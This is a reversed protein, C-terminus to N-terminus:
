PCEGQSREAERFPCIVFREPDRVREGRERKYILEAIEKKRMRKKELSPKQKLKIAKKSGRTRQRAALM